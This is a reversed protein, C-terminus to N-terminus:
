FIHASHSVFGNLNQSIRLNLPQFVSNSYEKSFNSIFNSISSHGNAFKPKFLLFDM